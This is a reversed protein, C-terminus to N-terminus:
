YGTDAFLPMMFERASVSSALTPVFKHYAPVNAYLYRIGLVVTAGLDVVKRKQLQLITYGVRVQRRNQCICDPAIEHIILDQRHDNRHSRPPHSRVAFRADFQVITGNSGGDYETPPLTGLVANHDFALIIVKGCFRVQSDTITSTRQGSALGGAAEAIVVASDGLTRADGLFRVDKFHSVSVSVPDAVSVTGAFELNGHIATALTSVNNPFAELHELASSGEGDVVLQIDRVKSGAHSV